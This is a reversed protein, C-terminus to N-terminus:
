CKFEGKKIYYTTKYSARRTLQGDSALSNLMARIRDVTSPMGRGLLMKTVTKTTYEVGAAMGDLIAARLQTCDLM